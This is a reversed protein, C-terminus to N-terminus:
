PQVEAECYRSVALWLDDMTGHNFLVRDCPILRMETESAHQRVPQTGPREVRWIEGGMSQIWAAENIFRVDSIVVRLPEISDKALVALRSQALRLWLDPRMSRGWETGLTQALERYSLGALQPMATEKLERETMHDPDAGAYHLLAGLMLRIPDAFALGTFGHEQELMARVTDKGSGALGTLGVIRPRQM